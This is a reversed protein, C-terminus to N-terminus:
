SSSETQARADRLLQQTVGVLRQRSFIFQRRQGGLQRWLVINRLAALLLARIQNQVAPQQLYDPKGTIRIPKGLPSILDSYIAAMGAVLTDHSFGFQDRQRQLQQLRQALQQQVSSRRTLRRELAMLAVLYRTVEIDKHQTPGIQLLLTELGWQLMAPEPYLAALNSPNLELVSHYLPRVQASHRVGGERAVQKVAAVAQAAAAFAIVPARLKSM